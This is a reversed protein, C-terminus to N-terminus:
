NAGHLNGADDNANEHGDYGREEKKDHLRARTANDSEKPQRVAGFVHNRLAAVPTRLWIRNGEVHASGTARPTPTVDVVLRITPVIRGHSVVRRRVDNGNGIAASPLRCKVTLM